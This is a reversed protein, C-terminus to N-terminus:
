REFGDVVATFAAAAADVDLDLAVELVPWPDRDLAEQDQALPRRDVVTQGRGIGELNVRVPLSATTFLEPHTLLLLAGADGLIGVYDQEFGAARTGRRHLLEGAARVAPHRSQTWRDATSQPILLRDFVDLGYMSVPLGSEVVCTAAEPDQWVNFEAVATVNGRSASGGMFVLRELHDAVDPHLTLLMAINTMPALSVLTVPQESRTIQEYLMETASQGSRARTTPPLQVGGLGDEGHFLGEPRTREIFPKTAGAAVPLDPAAAADLVKLTNDVVQELGANGAVCSVGRLDLDACGLAYLLALADDTGTDVDLVIPRPM